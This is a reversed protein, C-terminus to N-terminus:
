LSILNSIFSYSNKLSLIKPGIKNLIQILPRPVPHWVMIILDTAPTLLSWWICHFVLKFLRPSSNAIFSLNLMCPQHQQQDCAFCMLKVAMLFALVIQLNILYISRYPCPHLLSVPSIAIWFIPFLKPWLCRFNDVNYLKDLM